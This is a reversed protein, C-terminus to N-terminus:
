HTDAYTGISVIGFDKSNFRTKKIGWFLTLGIYPAKGRDVMEEHFKGEAVMAMVAAQRGCLIAYAGPLAGGAGWTSFIPVKEHEHIVVGDYVGL